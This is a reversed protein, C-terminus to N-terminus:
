LAAAPHKAATQDQAIDQIFTGQLDEPVARAANKDVSRFTYERGDRGKLRLSETSLGGGAQEVTLGGAFREPDLVEVRVPTTWATRYERGFLAQHLPGARYGEGATVTSTTQAAAASAALTAVAAAIAQRRGIKVFRM